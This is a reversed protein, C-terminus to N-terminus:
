MFAGLIAPYSMGERHQVKGPDKRMGLGVQDEGSGQPAAGTAVQLVSKVPLGPGGM